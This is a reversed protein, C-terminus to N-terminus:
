LPSDFHKGTLRLRLSQGDETEPEREQPPVHKGALLYCKVAKRPRELAMLVTEPIKLREEEQLFAKMGDGFQATFTHM